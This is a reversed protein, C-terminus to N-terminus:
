CVDVQDHQGVGERLGQELHAVRHHPASHRPAPVHPPELVGVVGVRLLVEILKPLPVLDAVGIVVLVDGSHEKDGSPERSHGGEADQEGNDGQEQVVPDALKEQHPVVLNRFVNRLVNGLGGEHTQLQQGQDVNQAYELEVVLDRGGFSEEVKDIRTKVIANGSHHQQQDDCPVQDKALLCHLWAHGLGIALGSKTEGVAVFCGVGDGFELSVEVEEVFHELLVVVLVVVGSDGADDGQALIGWALKGAVLLVQVAEPDLHLVLNGM